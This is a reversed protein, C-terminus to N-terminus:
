CSFLYLLLIKTTFHCIRAIRPAVVTASFLM